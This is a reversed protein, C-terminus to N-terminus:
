HSSNLRTSKRDKQRACLEISGHQRTSGLQPLRNEISSDGFVSQGTCGPLAGGLGPPDYQHCALNFCVCRDLVGGCADLAIDVQQLRDPVRLRVSMDDVLWM